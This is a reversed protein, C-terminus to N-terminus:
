RGSLHNITELAQVFATPEVHIEGAFPNDLEIILLLVFATLGAFLGVMFLHARQNPTRFFLTFGITVFAGTVLLYWLLSPIETRSELLRIRRYDGLQQLLDFLQQNHKDNAINLRDIERHITWMTEITDAVAATSNGITMDDWEQHLVLEAYQETADRIQEGFPPDVEQGLRYVNVLTNAENEVTVQADEFAQWVVLVMFALLVGYLVAIAAFIFGAVDNNAVHQKEDFHGRVWYTAGMALAASGGVILLILLPTPLQVLLYRM